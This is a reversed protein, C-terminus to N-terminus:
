QVIIKKTLIKNEFELKVIYFGNDSLNTKFNGNTTESFVMQGSLNYVELTYNEFERTKVNLTNNYNFVNFTEDLNETTINTTTPSLNIGQFKVLNFMIYKENWLMVEVVIQPNSVVVEETLSTTFTGSSIYDMTYSVGNNIFNVDLNLSGFLLDVEVYNVKGSINPEFTVSVDSPAFPDNTNSFVSNIRNQNNCGEESLVVDGEDGQAIEAVFLTSDFPEDGGCGFSLVNQSNSTLSFSLLMMTVM